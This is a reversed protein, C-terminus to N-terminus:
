RVVKLTQLSDGGDILQKIKSTAEDTTRICGNTAYDIGSRKAKDTSNARGSHVGCGVCGPVNFVFNGNAGYASNPADDSHKTPYDYGYTGAPWSGRSGSQANNAAPYIGATNGNGDFVTLTSHNYVATGGDYRTIIQGNNNYVIDTLGYPDSRGIPNGNVYAYRNSGGALGIPDPSMYRALKPSYYRHWNYHLGSEQDYYQGPFRMNLTLKQGDGDVDDNPATKGFAESEWRWVVKGELTRVEFPSGLQDTQITYVTRQPQHVIVGTLIDRNWIYTMLPVQGPATEALLHGDQDYHYFTTGVGQPAASTTVKRTRLGRYDYYYTAILANGSTRLERLQNLADWAYNYTGDSTVNGVADLTVNIGNITALKDSNPTITATTGAGDTTRNDNADFDHNRNGAPGNETDIRDLADYTYNTVGSPTTKKSVNGNADYQLTLDAAQALNSISASLGTMMMATLIVISLGHLRSGSGTGRRRNMGGLLGAGLLWLAWAPLPADGESGGAGTTDTGTETTLRGANDFTLNLLSLGLMATYLRGSADYGINSAISTTISAASTASLTQVQGAANLTVAVTEATPTSHDIPRNAANYAYHSTFSEGGESRIESIRNGQADYDFVTSGGIDTIQCLHGIGHTCGTATDWTYILSSAAISGSAPTDIRTLRNLADYQYNVTLGRADQGTLRNGAADYTATTAGSDSSTEQKLNGLGDLTYGTNAGNPATFATLQDLGDYSMQTPKATGNVPDIRKTTRGLPDIELSTIDGKPSTVTKLEGNAFYGYTSPAKSSDGQIDNQLRNLADFSRNREQAVTGDVNLYLTNIRNGANDLTYHLKNGATDTIDTLRHAADYTYSLTSADPLTVAIPQGVNDYDITTIDGNVSRTKLWGRPTYTYATIAGNPDTMSLLRGNADYATYSWIHGLADTVTALNGRKGLDPDTATYYSYTTTDSVDTRPGDESLVQGYQNYTYAWIRTSSAGSALTASFGTSGNPDTTAQEIKKCLVAIPKGNVLASGPACSIVANGNGPDPQGNYVLMTIKLPEAIRTELRWDPHWQTSITRTAVTAAGASTLGETRSTELNRALDYSYTTQNGNFDTRSAINGNADYTFNSASAPCGSGAPQNQGTSRVGGQIIAFNYTLVASTATDTVVSNTPNGASDTNYTILFKEVGGAHETSIGKGQIDYSYTSFRGGNEDTIGTLAHSNNVDEYHYHKITADPYQVSQLNELSDYTYAYIGGAPDILKSIRGASDYDFQLKSGYANTIAVPLGKYAFGYPQTTDAYLINITYGYVDTISTVRGQTNFVIVSGDNVNTLSLGVINNSADYVNKLTNKNSARNAQFIKTTTNYSYNYFKGDPAIISYDTGTAAIEQWDYNHRWKKGLLNSKQGWGSNYIRYFNLRSSISTYDDEYQIKNGTGHNIPNGVPCFDPAGLNEQSVASLATGSPVCDDGLPTYGTQCAM